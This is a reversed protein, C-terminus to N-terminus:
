LDDIFLTSTKVTDVKSKGELLEILTFAFDFVYAIGRGTVILGDVEVGNRTYIGNESFREFSPYCTFRKNELIGMKGLILPAACIASVFKNLRIFDNIIEKVKLSNDLEKVGAGGPLFLMDYDSSSVDNINSEINYKITSGSTIINNSISKVDVIIEARRLLDIVTIAEIDEFGNALLVLVKKM